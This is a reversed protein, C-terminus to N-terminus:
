DVRHRNIRFTVPLVFISRVKQNNKRAAEWKTKKYCVKKVANLASTILEPENHTSKLVSFNSASGDKEVVFQVYVKLYINMDRASKPIKLKDSIKRLFDLQSMGILEADKDVSKYITTDAESQAYGLFSVGCFLVVFLILKINKM